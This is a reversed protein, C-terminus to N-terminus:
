CFTQYWDLFKTKQNEGFYWFIMISNSPTIKSTNKIQKEFFYLTLPKTSGGAPIKSFYAFKMTGSTYVIEINVHQHYKRNFLLYTEHNLQAEPPFKQFYLMLKM